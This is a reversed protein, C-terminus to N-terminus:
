TFQVYNGDFGLPVEGSVETSNLGMHQILLLDDERLLFNKM